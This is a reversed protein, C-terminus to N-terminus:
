RAQAHRVLTSPPPTVDVIEYGEPVEFLAPDPPERKIHLVTVTKGGGSSVTHHILINMHLDTSYWFEDTITVPKDEGNGSVPMTYAELTGRCEIGNIIKTGLDKSQPKHLALLRADLDIPPLSLVRQSAMSTRPDYYTNLRSQPDFIHVGLIEPIGTFDEPMAQRIENHIRGTNDRAIENISYWSWITGDTNLTENRIEVTASFPAGEVPTVFIGQVSDEQGNRPPHREGTAEQARLLTANLLLVFVILIGSKM